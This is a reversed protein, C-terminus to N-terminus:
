VVVKHRMLELMPLDHPANGYGWSEAFPGNAAIYEAVLEAKRQRVCNGLPMRGTIVGDIVEVKTCILAHHPVDVLLTPLYLDLSGSAIVIHHGADHHKRLATVSPELWTRWNRLQLIAPAIDDIRRGALLRLLLREKVFSRHNGLMATSAMVPLLAVAEMMAFVCRPWGAVACLFPWLSDGKSLTDDFDFVAITRPETM